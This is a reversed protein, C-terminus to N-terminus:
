VLRPTLMWRLVGHPTAGFDEQDIRLLAAKKMDIQLQPVGLLFAAAMSLLPEHGALLISDEHRHRRIIEWVAKPSSEPVLVEDEVIQSCDLAAGAMEATQRARKYPSSIILSPKVGASHARKLVTALKDRGEATLARASDPIGPGADEAIAHRLIYIEM